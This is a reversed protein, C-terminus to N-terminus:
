FTKHIKRFLWDTMRDIMFIKIIGDIILNFFRIM